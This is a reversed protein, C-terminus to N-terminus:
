GSIFRVHVPIQIGKEKRKAHEDGTEDDKENRRIAETSPESRSDIQRKRKAIRKKRSANMTEPHEKKM